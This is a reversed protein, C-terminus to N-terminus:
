RSCGECLVKNDKWYLRVQEFDAMLEGHKECKDCVCMKDFIAAPMWSTRYRLGGGLDKVLRKQTGNKRVIKPSM